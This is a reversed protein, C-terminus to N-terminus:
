IENILTPKASALLDAAFVFLRAIAAFSIDNYFVCRDLRMMIGEDM